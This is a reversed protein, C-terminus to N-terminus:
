RKPMTERHGFSGELNESGRLPRLKFGVPYEMARWDVNCIAIDMQRGGILQLAREVLMKGSLIFQNDCLNIQHWEAVEDFPFGRATTRKERM